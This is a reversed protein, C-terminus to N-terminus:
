EVIKYYARATLVYVILYVVAFAAITIATAALFLNSDPFNLMAMIRRTLPFAVMTHVVAVALPLFFVTVVQSQITQRIEKRSMGVKQMIQFRKRDDFGESVQKYYIIMVAGMLFLAGVFVGLFLLSGYLSYVTNREKERVEVWGNFSSETLITEIEDGVTIQEGADGILDLAYEWSYGEPEKGQVAAYAEKAEHNRTVVTMTEYVQTKEDLIYSKKDTNWKKVEYTQNGLEITDYGYNKQKAQFVLAQGPELEVQEGTVQNYESEEMIKILTSAAADDSQTKEVKNRDVDALMVYYRQDSEYKKRLQKEELHQDIGTKVEEIMKQSVPEVTKMIGSVGTNAEISIQHPFRTYTVEEIGTWLCTSISIVLLVGTSLICINALGVANQKMRYLMGSISTFHRTQYYYNKNKKLIKLFAISGASFLCYTGVMVLAIANFFKDLADMSSQSTLALYYGVGLLMFGLVATLLKTKPEREGQAGGHLLEVPQSVHIQRLSLLFNIVFTLGFLMTSGVAKASFAFGITGNLGTLKMLVLFLLRYLLVGLLIGIGLSAAWLYLSEFFLIKALHKKEMGLIQFLGFEKKRRKALFSNSYILFIVCFIGVVVEGTGVILRVESAQPVAKELTPCDRLFEMMYMMAICFICTLMYPIYTSRNNRINQVALKGFLGRRM